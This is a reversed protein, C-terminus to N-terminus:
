LIWAQPTIQMLIPPVEWFPGALERVWATVEESSKGGGIRSM